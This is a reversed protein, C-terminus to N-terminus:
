VCPLDEDSGFKFYKIKENIELVINKRLEPTNLEFIYGQLIESIDDYVKNNIYNL